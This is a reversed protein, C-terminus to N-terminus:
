SKRKAGNLFERAIWSPLPSKELFRLREKLLELLKHLEEEGLKKRM